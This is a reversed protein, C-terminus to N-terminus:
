KNDNIHNNLFFYMFSITYRKKVNLKKYYKKSDKCSLEVKKPYARKM